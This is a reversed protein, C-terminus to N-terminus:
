EPKPEPPKAKAAKAKAKIINKRLMDNATQLLRGHQASSNYRGGMNKLEATFLLAASCSRIVGQPIIILVSWKAFFNKSLSSVAGM